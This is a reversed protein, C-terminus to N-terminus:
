NEEIKKVIETIKKDQMYLEYSRRVYAQVLAKLDNNGDINFDKAMNHQIYPAFDNDVEVDFNRGGIHLSIKSM